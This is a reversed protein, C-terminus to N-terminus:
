TRNFDIGSPTQCQSFDSPLPRLEAVARKIGRTAARPDGQTRVVYEPNPWFGPDLCIYIYPGTTTQLNTKVNEPQISAILMGPLM